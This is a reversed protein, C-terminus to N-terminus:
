STREMNPAKLIRCIEDEVKYLHALTARLAKADDKSVQADAARDVAALTQRTLSYAKAIDGGAAKAAADRAARKEQERLARRAARARRQAAMGAKHQRANFIPDVWRLITNPSSGLAEAIATVTLGAKRLRIAEDRRWENVPVGPTNAPPLGRLMRVAEAIGVDSNELRDRYAALRMHTGVTTSALGTNEEVWRVWEGAAVRHRAELLAEGARIAHMLATSAAAHAAADERRITEALQDLTQGSLDVEAARVTMATM